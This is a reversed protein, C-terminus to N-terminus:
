QLAEVLDCQRQLAVIFDTSKLRRITLGAGPNM